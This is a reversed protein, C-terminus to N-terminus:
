EHIEQKRDPTNYNVWLWALTLSPIFDSFPSIEEVFTFGTWKWRGFLVYSIVAAVPAWAIDTLEGPLWGAYSLYGIGDAVLCIVLKTWKNLHRM